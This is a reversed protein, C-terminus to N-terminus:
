EVTLNQLFFAFDKLAPEEISAATDLLVLYFLKGPMRQQIPVFGFTEPGKKGEQHHLPTPSEFILGPFEPQEREFCVIRGHGDGNEHYMGPQVGREAICREAPCRVPTFPVFTGKSEFSAAFEELTQGSKAQQVLLLLCPRLTGKKAAYPGSCFLTTGKEGKLQFGAKEWDAHVRIQAGFSEGTLVEANGAPEPGLWVASAEYEKQPDFPVIRQRAIEVYDKGRDSQPEHLKEMYSAARLVHVPMDSLLVCEMYDDWFAAPLRDRAGAAELALFGRAGDEIETSQCHLTSRFWGARLDGPALKGAADFMSMATDYAQNIELNHAYNAVLGALLALEANEPHAKVAQALFGLDKSLRDAVQQRPIDFQWLSAATWYQSYPELDRADDLAALVATEQPLATAHIASLDSALIPLSFSLLFVALLVVNKPMPAEREPTQEGTYSVGCIRAGPADRGDPKTRWEGRGVISVLSPSDPPFASMKIRIAPRLLMATDRRLLRGAGSGTCSAKSSRCSAATHSPVLWFSQWACCDGSCEAFLNACTM